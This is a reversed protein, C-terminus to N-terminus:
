GAVAFRRATVEEVAHEAALQGRFLDKRAALREPEFDGNGVAKRDHSERLVPGVLCQKSVALM